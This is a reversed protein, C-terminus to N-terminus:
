ATTSVSPNKTASFYQELAKQVVMSDFCGINAAHIEVKKALDSPLSYQKKTRPSNSPRRSM